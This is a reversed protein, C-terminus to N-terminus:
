PRDPRREGFQEYAKLYRGGVDVRIINKMQRWGPEEAWVGNGDIAHFTIRNHEREVELVAGVEVWGFGKTEHFLCVLDGRRRLADFLEPRKADEAVDFVGIPVGMSEVVRTVFNDGRHREVKGVKKIQDLRLLILDDLYFGDRLVHVVVWRKTLAVVFGGPSDNWPNKLLISVPCRLNQALALRTRKTDDSQGM